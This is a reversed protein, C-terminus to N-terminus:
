LTGKRIMLEPLTYARLPGTTNRTNIDHKVVISPNQLPKPHPINRPTPSVVAPNMPDPLTPPVFGIETSPAPPPPPSPRKARLSQLHTLDRLAHHFARSLSAARRQLIVLREEINDYAFVLSRSETFDDYDRVVETSANWLKSEVADM